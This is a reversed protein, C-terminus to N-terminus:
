NDKKRNQDVQQQHRALRDFLIDSRQPLNPEDNKKSKANDLKLTNINNDNNDNNNIDTQQVIQQRETTDNRTSNATDKTTNNYQYKNYNTITILTTINNKQQVIQGDNELGKLFRLVKGRSWKWRLALKESTYGIQGRMILVKIGRVRFSKKDHNALLLMDVWAMNRCFPEDFYNDNDQIKRHLSIWGENPM